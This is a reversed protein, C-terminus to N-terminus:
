MKKILMTKILCLPIHTGLETISGSKVSHILVIGATTSLRVFWYEQWCFLMLLDIGKDCGVNFSVHGDNRWELSVCELVLYM